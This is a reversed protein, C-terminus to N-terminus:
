PTCRAQREHSRRLPAQDPHLLIQIAKPHVEFAMEQAQNTEGDLDVAFPTDLSIM